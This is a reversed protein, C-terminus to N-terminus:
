FLSCEKLIAKLQRTVKRWDYEHCKLLLKESESIKVATAHTFYKALFFRFRVHYMMTFAITISYVLECPPM